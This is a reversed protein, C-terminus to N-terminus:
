LFFLYVLLYIMLTFENGLRLVSKDTNIEAIYIEFSYKFSLELVQLKRENHPCSSHIM